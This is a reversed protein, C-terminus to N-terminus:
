GNKMRRRRAADKQNDFYIQSLSRADECTHEPPLKSLLERIKAIRQKATTHAM